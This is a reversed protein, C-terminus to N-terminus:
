ISLAAVLRLPGVLGLFEGAVGSCAVGQWSVLSGQM